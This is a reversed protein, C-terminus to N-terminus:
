RTHPAPISNASTAPLAVSGATATASAVSSTLSNGAQQSPLGTLEANPVLSANAGRLLAGRGTARSANGIIKGDALRLYAANGSVVMGLHEAARAVNQPSAATAVQQKVQDYSRSVTKNQSQLNDIEYANSSALVSLSIQLIITGLVIVMAIFAYFLKPRRARRPTNAVSTLSPQRSAGISPRPIQNALAASM